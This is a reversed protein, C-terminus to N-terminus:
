PEAAHIWGCPAWGSEGAHAGSRIEVECFGRDARVREVHPSLGEIVFGCLATLEAVRKRKEIGEMGQAQQFEVACKRDSAVFVTPHIGRSLNHLDEMPSSSYLLPLKAISKAPRSDVATQAMGAAACLALVMLKTKM